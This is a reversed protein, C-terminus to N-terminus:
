TPLRKKDFIHFADSSGLIEKVISGGLLGGKKKFGMQALYDQYSELSINDWGISELNTLIRLEWYQMCRSKKTQRYKNNRKEQRETLSVLSPKRGAMCNVGLNIIDRM